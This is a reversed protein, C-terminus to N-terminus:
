TSPLATDALLQKEKLTLQKPYLSCRSSTPCFWVVFSLRPVALVQVSLYFDGRTLACKFVFCFVTLLMLKM